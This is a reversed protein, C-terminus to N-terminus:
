KIVGFDFPKKVYKKLIQLDSQDALGDGDLDASFLQANSLAAQGKVFKKLVQLDSIDVAESIDDYEDDGDVNGYVFSTPAADVIALGTIKGDVVASADVTGIYVKNQISYVLEVGDVTVKKTGNGENLTVEVVVMGDQDFAEDYADDVVLYDGDIAPPDVEKAKVTITYTATKGEFTATVTQTGENAMNYGSFTATVTKTSGDSYTATVTPAVFTDGVTYETKAGSVAISTLEVVPPEIGEGITLTATTVAQSSGGVYIKYNGPKALWKNDIGFTISTSGEAGTVQDIFIVNDNPNTLWADGETRVVITVQGSSNTGTVPVTVSTESGDYVFNSGTIGYASASVMMGAVVCVATVVSAIRKVLKLNKSM